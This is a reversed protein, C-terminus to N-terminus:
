WSIYIYHHADIHSDMVQLNMKQNKNDALGQSSMGM